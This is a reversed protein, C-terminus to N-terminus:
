PQLIGEMKGNISIFVNKVAPFQELTRTIQSRIASVRCSGGVGQELTENFDVRATGNEIVIKQVSVGSNISTFYGQSKEQDTPGKLLEELTAQAITITEPIKREVPSVKNCVLQPNVKNNNFYILIDATNTIGRIQVPLEFSKGAQTMGSPNENHFVLKGPAISSEFELDAEFSVPLQTWDSTAKLPAAIIVKGSNNILDVSGVQGEFGFWGNGTVLGTIKFPSSILDGPQVNNIILGDAKTQASISVSAINDSSHSKIRLGIYFIVGLIIVIILAILKKKM